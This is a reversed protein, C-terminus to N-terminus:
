LMKSFLTPMVSVTAQTNILYFQKRNLYTYEDIPPSIIRVHSGDVVNIVKPVGFIQLFDRIVHSIKSANRPLYIFQSTKCVISIFFNFLVHSATPQSVNM